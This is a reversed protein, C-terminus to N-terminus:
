IANEGYPGHAQQARKKLQKTETEELGLGNLKKSNMCTFDPNM